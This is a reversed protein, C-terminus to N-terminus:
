DMRFRRKFATSLTVPSTYELDGGFPIGTSLRTAGVGRNRLMTAIYEMTAEGETSPNLALVVEEPELRKLQALLQPIHIEDPGIGEIPSLLRGLVFYRGRFEHLREIALVDAATEVICLFKDDRRPDTCYGCPDSPTLMNCQSCTTISEVASRICDSLELANERSGSVMQLAMRQATRTGIGPLKKLSDILSQLVEELM